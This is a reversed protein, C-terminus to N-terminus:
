LEAVDLLIKWYRIENEYTSFCWCRVSHRWHENIRIWCIVRTTTKENHFAALRKSKSDRSTCCRKSIHGQRNNFTQSYLQHRKLSACQKIIFMQQQKIIDYILHVYLPTLCSGPADVSNKTNTIQGHAMPRPMEWYNQLIIWQNSMFHHAVYTSESLEKREYTITGKYFKQVTFNLNM